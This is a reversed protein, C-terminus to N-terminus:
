WSGGGGGGMGGGSFGGGGFGSAGSSSPTAAALAGAATTTFSDMARGFSDYDFLGPHGYGVYWIPVAVAVGRAALAAFVAAWREAVGFVIAFPLYRSFIDEGEEFRIQDAEATELYTRFGRAQVLVATGKATRAPMRGALVLFVLGALAIALGVLGWHTAWALLVTTAIGVVLAIAGVVTWGVRVRHPNGRFWGRGTVDDYLLAQVRLLDARFTQKLDSLLVEQGSAFVADLLTAEYPYLDDDRSDRLRRLRWDGREFRAQKEVEEIRLYGRVALDVITATVDVVNAREDLLTGLQGARLGEPPTFQVAIPDRHLLPVRGVIGGAGGQEHDSVAGRSPAPELGPTLALYQEDRGKRAVLTIVGGTLFVLVALSVGATWPTVSFARAASWIEELIPVTNTFTGAPFAAVVTVGQRPELGSASFTAKGTGVGAVTCAQTSGQAGKFCSAQEVSAPADVTATVSDIPVDWEPGVANWYLEEHDSFANVVGGVTYDIVYTQRGRVTEDEDGIRLVTTSGTTVELDDPAGSPSSVQIDDIPTVRHFEDDYPYERPITRIIGHRDQAAGFDYVITETVHMSSNTAVSMEAVYSVIKEQAGSTATRTGTVAGAVPVSGVLIAFCWVLVPLTGAVVRRRAGTTGSM